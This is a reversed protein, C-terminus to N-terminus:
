KAKHNHDFMAAFSLYGKAKITRFNSRMGTLTRFRHLSFRDAPIRFDTSRYRIHIEGEILLFSADRNIAWLATKCDLVRGSLDDDFVAIIRANPFRDRLSKIQGASPRLGLVSFVDTGPNHTWHPYFQCFYLLDPATHFLFHQRAMNPEVVGATESVTVKDPVLCDIWPSFYDLLKPDIRKLWSM